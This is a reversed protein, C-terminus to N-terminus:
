KRLEIRIEEQLEKIRAGSKVAEEHTVPKRFDLVEGNILWVRRKSGMEPCNKNTCKGGSKLSGCKCFVAMVIGIGKAM